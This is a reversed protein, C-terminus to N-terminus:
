ENFDGIAKKQCYEEYGEIYEKYEEYFYEESIELKAKRFTIVNYITKILLITYLIPTAIIFLIFAFIYIVLKTQIINECIKDIIVASLDIEGSINPLKLLIHKISYLRGFKKYGEFVKLSNEIRKILKINIM